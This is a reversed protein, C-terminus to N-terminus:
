SVAALESKPSHNPTASNRPRTTRAARSPLEAVRLLLRGWGEQAVPLFAPWSEAAFRRARNERAGTPGKGTDLYWTFAAYRAAAELPKM